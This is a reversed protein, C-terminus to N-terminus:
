SFKISNIVRIRDIYIIPICISLLIMIFMIVNILLINSITFDMPIHDIYYNEKNLKFLKFNNQIYIIIFSLSNGIVMGYFTIKFGINFFINFIINRNTGFSKLTGILNTKEIILIFIISLMNFCAVMVIIIFFIAVNKDLLSLWDFIQIYKNNTTEVYENYLANNKIENIQSEKYLNKNVFIHLGSAKQTDWKYLKRSLSIPGFVTLDDIEQLGTNYIGEVLMKRFVPPENPFFITVTDYLFANLKKSLSYSIIVSNNLNFNDGIEDIHHSINNIYNKDIGNFVVGEINNEKGQILASNLIYPHVSSIDKINKSKVYLGDSLNIPSNKFSLGNSYNSINYHGSFDYIKKKIEEKFGSLIFSSIIVSFLGLSISVLAVGRIVYTFSNLKNKNNFKYIDNFLKM